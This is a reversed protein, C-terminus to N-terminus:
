QNNTCWLQPVCFNEKVEFATTEIENKWEVPKRVFKRDVSRNESCHSLVDIPFFVKKQLFISKIIRMIKKISRWLKNIKKDGKEFLPYYFLLITWFYTEGISTLGYIVNNKQKYLKTRPSYSFMVIFVLINTM